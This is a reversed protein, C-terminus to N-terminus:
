GVAGGRTAHSEAITQLLSKKNADGVYDYALKAVRGSDLFNIGSEKEM